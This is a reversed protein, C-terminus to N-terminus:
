KVIAEILIRQSRAPLRLFNDYNELLSEVAPNERCNPQAISSLRTKINSIESEIGILKSQMMQALSDIKNVLNILVENQQALNMIIKQNSSIKRFLGKAMKLDQQAYSYIEQQLHSLHTRNRTAEDSKCLDRLISARDNGLRMRDVYFEAGEQDADRGFILLYAAHVFTDRPLNLLEDINNIVLSDEM